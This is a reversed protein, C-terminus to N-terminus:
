SLRMEPVPASYARQGFNMQGTVLNEAFAVVALDAAGGLHHPLRLARINIGAAADNEAIRAFLQAREDFGEINRRNASQHSEACQRRVMRVEDAHRSHVAAVGGVHAHVM